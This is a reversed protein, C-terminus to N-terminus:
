GGATRTSVCRVCLRGRLWCLAPRGTCPERRFRADDVHISDKRCDVPCAAPNTIVPSVRRQKRWDMIGAVPRVMRERILDRGGDSLSLRLIAEQIDPALHNLHMIQTIRARSVQALRALEAYDSVQGSDILQQMHIALAALPCRKKARKLPKGSGAKAVPHAWLDKVSGPTTIGERHFKKVQSVPFAIM